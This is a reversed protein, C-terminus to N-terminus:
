IYTIIFIMKINLIYKYGPDDVRYRIFIPIKNLQSVDNTTKKSVINIKFITSVINRKM